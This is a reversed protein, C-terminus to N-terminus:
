QKVVELCLSLSSSIRMPVSYFLHLRQTMSHKKFSVLVISAIDQPNISKQFDFNYLLADQTQQINCM